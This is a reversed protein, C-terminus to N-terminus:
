RVSVFHLSDRIADFAALTDPFAMGPTHLALVSDEDRILFIRQPNGHDLRSWTEIDIADRGDISAQRRSKIERPQDHGIRADVAMLGWDILHDWDPLPLLPSLHELVIEAEGRQFRKQRGQDLAEWGAPVIAQVRHTGFEFTTAAPAPAPPNRACSSITLFALALCSLNASM